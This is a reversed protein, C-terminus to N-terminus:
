KEFLHGLRPRSPMFPARLPALREPAPHGPCPWGCRWLPGRPPSWSGGLEQQTAAELTSPWASCVGYDPLSAAPAHFIGSSQRSNAAVVMVGWVSSDGQSGELKQEVHPATTLGYLASVGGYSGGGLLTDPCSSPVQRGDQLRWCGADLYQRSGVEASGEAVPPPCHGPGLVGLELHPQGEGKKWTHHFACM